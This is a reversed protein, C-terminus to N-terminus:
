NKVALAADVPKWDLACGDFHNGCAQDLDARTDCGPHGEDCTDPLFAWVIQLLQKREDPLAALFEAEHERFLASLHVTHGEVHANAPRRVFRRAADDLQPNLSQPDFPAGDLVGSGRAGTFLALYVRADGAESVFDDFISRRTVWRGGIPLADFRERWESVVQARTDLLELLVMAHYANLWFTLRDEVTEFRQPQSEPSTSAMAAIFRELSAHRKKLEALDVVGRSDIARMADALDVLSYAPTKEPLRAPFRGRSWSLVLAACALALAGLLMALKLTTRM